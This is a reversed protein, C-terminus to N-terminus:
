FARVARVYEDYLKDNNLQNGSGFSQDWAYHSDSESSSWYNGSTFGGVTDKQTYLENLEDKSPLFWDDYGSLEFDYCLRAAYNGSGLQNVNKETNSKGSGIDTGTGGVETGSGGWKVKSDHDSPAAELYRWGDSYSGKDYFVIGGAPGTDGISYGIQIAIIVSWPGSQGAGDKAQVRWYYTQKDTLPSSPTYTAATVSQTQAAEVVTPNDALQLDYGAAGPVATWSFTPTTDTASTGDAPSLGSVAGISVALSHIDSWAGKQDDGDVARVRWYHTQENALASSPTYSTDTVSQTPAAEVEAASDALQLEYGATGPIADWSFTPTTDTTSAGDAPSLGSVTGLEVPGGNAGPCSVLLTLVVVGM